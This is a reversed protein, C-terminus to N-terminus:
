RNKNNYIIYDNQEDYIVEIYQGFALINALHIDLLLYFINM